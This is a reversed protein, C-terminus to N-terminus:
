SLVVWIFVLAFGVVDIIISPNVRPSPEWRM